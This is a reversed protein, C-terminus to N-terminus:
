GFRSEIRYAIIGFAIYSGLAVILPVFARRWGGVAYNCAGLYAAFLLSFTALM